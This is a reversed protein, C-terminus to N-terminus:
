THELIVKFESQSLDKILYEDPFQGVSILRSIHIKALDIKWIQPRLAIVPAKNIANIIRMKEIINLNTGIIWQTIKNKIQYVRSHNFDNKEIIAELDMYLRIPNSSLGNSSPNIKSAFWTRHKNSFYLKAIEAVLWSQCSFGYKQNLQDKITFM